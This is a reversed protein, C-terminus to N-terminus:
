HRGIRDTWDALKEPLFTYFRLMVATSARETQHAAVPQENLKLSQVRLLQRHHEESKNRNRKLFRVHHSIRRNPKRKM